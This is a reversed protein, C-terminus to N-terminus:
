RDGYITISPTQEDLVPLSTILKAPGTQKPILAFGIMYGALWLCVASLICVVAVMIRDRKWIESSKRYRTMQLRDIRSIQPRSLGDHDTTKMSM